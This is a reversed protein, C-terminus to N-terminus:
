SIRRSELHRLVFWARDDNVWTVVKRTFDQFAVESVSCAHSICHSLNWSAEQIAVFGRMFNINAVSSFQGNSFLIRGM